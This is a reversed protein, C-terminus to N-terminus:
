VTIGKEGNELGKQDKPMSRIHIDRQPFAIEINRERFLRDVAFRVDTSTTYYYDVTTWYRLTFILASDGHDDFLVDPKPKKLVNKTQNAIELLTRRVLEIDSGYAVGVSVRRRLSPEKFSWNTVQSSIFESNPIILSANDFTQVVTARVNIKKVTGWVGQIEVADGVQIPREFLLIIGSLFNNFITQLGFGLGIGLAGFVVTLSTTSVGLVSLALIVGLGWMVYISITTISDQLGPELESEAFIKEALIYRALRTLILTLFLILVTFFLHLPSLHINGISFSKQLATYIGAFVNQRTSWALILAMSFGCFWLLWSISVFLQRIPNVYPLPETDSIVDSPQYERHWEIIVNFLIVAWFLAALTRCWSVLWYLAMAPYGALEIILGGFTIFYTLMMLFTHSITGPAREQFFPQNANRFAKWFTVCWAMLFTEILLRGMFLIFSDEGVAWQIVIYAVAIYRVFITMRQIRPTLEKSVILTDDPQRFHLFDLLWRSFLFILLINFVPRYFPFRYHSFQIINYCFLVFLIGLIILSRRILRVCLFRWRHATVFSRKEYNFCYRRLRTVLAAAVATLFTLILFSVPATERIRRGEGGLFGKQFPKFLNAALVAVEKSVADKRFVRLLLYKRSFLERAKRSTIQQQLKENLQSTSVRVTELQKIVPDLGELLSEVVRRKEALPQELKDLGALLSAKEAKSWGSNQIEIVQRESLSIQDQTQQHLEQAADRRKTFDKIKDDLTNLSLRNEDLAKVLDTIPTASQILLNSHASNQINYANIEIFVAKKLIDLRGLRKKLEELIDAEVAISNKIAQLLETRNRETDKKLTEKNADAVAAVVPVSLLSFLLWGCLIIQKFKQRQIM